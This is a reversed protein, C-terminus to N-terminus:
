VRARIAPLQEVIDVSPRSDQKPTVLVDLATNDFVRDNSIAVAEHIELASRRRGTLSPM